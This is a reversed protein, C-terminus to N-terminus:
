SVSSSKVIKLEDKEYTLLNHFLGRIRSVVQPEHANKNLLFLATTRESSLMDAMYLLFKYAQDFGVLEILRSLNDFILVVNEETHVELVKNFSDLMLATNNAPLSIENESIAEKTSASALMLFFKISHQEALSAYIASTSPTFVFTPELNAMAEKAFDVVIMEYNSTPDFELLFKRGLLKQHPMDIRKSFADAHEFLDIFRTSPYKGGGFTKLIETGQEESMSGVNIATLEMIFPEYLVGVGSPVEWKPDDWYNMYIQWQGKLFSFDGLDEIERVKCSKRKAEARRKLFFQMAKEKDFSGDPMFFKTLSKMFLIGNKEYKEVDIGYEELKARVIESDEDPYLYFVWDGREVGERIFASFVKMKDAAPTYTIIAVEGNKINLFSKADKQFSATFRKQRQRLFNKIFSSM